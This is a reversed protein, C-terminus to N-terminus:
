VGFIRENFRQDGHQEEARKGKGKPMCKIVNFVINMTKNAM